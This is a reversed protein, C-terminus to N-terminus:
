FTFPKELADDGNKILVTVKKGFLVAPVDAGEPASLKLVGRTGDKGDRILEPKNIFIAPDSEIMVDADDKIGGAAYVPIALTNKGLVATEMKLADSDETRPLKKVSTEIVDKETTSAPDHAPLTRSLKIEQPVCIKNCALAQVTMNLIVSKGTEQPIIELPFVIDGDYGFSNMGDFEYRSPTPWKVKVDAVNVSNKWDFVTPLGADGPARWYIYWDDDLSIEVGMPVSTMAGASDYSSLLKGRLYDASSEVQAYASYSSLAGVCFFITLIKKM